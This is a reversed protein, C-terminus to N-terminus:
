RTGFTPVRHTLHEFAVAIGCLILNAARVGQFTGGNCTIAVISLIVFLTPSNLVRELERVARATVRGSGRM